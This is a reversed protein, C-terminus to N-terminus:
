RLLGAWTMRRKEDSNTISAISRGWFAGAAFLTILTIAIDIITLTTEPIHMPLSNIAFAILFSVLLGIFLFAATVLACFIIIRRTNGAKNM